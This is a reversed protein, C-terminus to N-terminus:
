GQCMGTVTGGGGGGFVGSICHATLANATVHHHANVYGQCMGTVRVGGGGGCCVLYVTRQSPM